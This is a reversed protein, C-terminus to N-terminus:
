STRVASGSFVKPAQASVQDDIEPIDSYDIDEDRLKDLRGLDSKIGRQKPAM